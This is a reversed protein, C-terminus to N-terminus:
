KGGIIIITKRGCGGCKLTIKGEGKVVIKEDTKETIEGEIECLVKRCPNKGSPFIKLHECLLRSM